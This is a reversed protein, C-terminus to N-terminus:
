VRNDLRRLKGDRPDRQGQASYVQASAPGRAGLLQLSFDVYAMAQQVLETNLQNAEMLAKASAGYTEAVTQCRPGYEPPVTAVLRELTLQSAHIRLESAIEVQLRFRREELKGMQWILAQEGRLLIDLEDLNGDVLLLSKKQTLASLDNMIKVQEEMLALLSTLRQPDM